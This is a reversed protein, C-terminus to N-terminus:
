RERGAEIVGADLVIHRVHERGHGHVVHIRGDSGQMMTPYDAQDRNRSVDPILVEWREGDFSRALSLPRRDPPPNYALLHVGNATTLAHSGAKTDIPSREIPSWTKGGDTSESWASERAFVALHQMDPSLVIFSPQIAHPNGPGRPANQRADTIPGIIEVGHEQGIWDGARYREFHIRWGEPSETSSACLLDGDPLVIPRNKVPGTARHAYPEFVAHRQDQEIEPLWVRDSWTRGGDDSTRVAGWWNKYGPLDTEGTIKFWLYIRGTEPHTFLVPNWCAYEIDREQGDRGTITCVGDDVIVPGSWPADVPKRAVWIDVDARGERSGGYWAALLTGDAAETITAAHIQRQRPLDGHPINHTELVADAALRGQQAFAAGCLCALVFVITTRM